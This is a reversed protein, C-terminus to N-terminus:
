SATPHVRGLKCAAALVGAPKPVPMRDEETLLTDEDILDDEEPLNLKAITAPAATATIRAKVGTDFGPKTSQYLAFNDGDLSVETQHVKTLGARLMASKVQLSAM